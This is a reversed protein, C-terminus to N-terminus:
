ASANRGHGGLFLLNRYITVRGESDADASAGAPHPYLVRVSCAVRPEGDRRVWRLRLSCSAASQFRVQRLRPMDCLHVPCRITTPDRPPKSRAMPMSTPAALVSKPNQRPSPLP